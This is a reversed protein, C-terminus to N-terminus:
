KFDPLDSVLYWRDEQDNYEWIQRDSAIRVTVDRTQYYQIDIFRIVKSKDESVITQKVIYDTMRIQRYRDFDPLNTDGDSLKKFGYAEEYSGWRLTNDYARTTDDFLSMRNGTEITACGIILLAFVALGAKTRNM